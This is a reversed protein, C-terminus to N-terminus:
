AAEAFVDAAGGGTLFGAIRGAEALARRMIEGDASIAGHWGRIYDAERREEYALGFELMVGVTALHAALEEWAYEADEDDCNLGDPYTRGLERQTAHCIEHTLDRLYHDLSLYYGFEPMQIKHQFPIYRPNPALASDTVLPPDAFRALLRERYEVARDWEDDSAWGFEDVPKLRDHLPGRIEGANIVFFRKFFVGSVDREGSEDEVRKSYDVPRYIPAATAGRWDLGDIEKALTKLSGIPIFRSDSYGSARGYLFINVLNFIGRYRRGTLGNRPASRLRGPNWPSVGESAAADAVGAMASVIRESPSAKNASANASGSANANVRAGSKRKGRAGGGRRKANAKGNAM